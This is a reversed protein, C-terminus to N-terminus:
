GETFYLPVMIVFEAVSMFATLADIALKVL